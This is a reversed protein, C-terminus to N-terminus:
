SSKHPESEFRACPFAWALSRPARTAGCVEISTCAGAEFPFPIAYHPTEMGFLYGERKLETLAFGNPKEDVLGLMVFRKFAAPDPQFDKGHLLYLLERVERPSLPALLGRVMIARRATWQSCRFIPVACM